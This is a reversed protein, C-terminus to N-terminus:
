QVHVTLTHETGDNLTLVFQRCTGRWAGVNWSYTYTGSAFSLSGSTPALAGLPSGTTCDVQRSAPSGAALIGLGRDAGGLTFKVAATKNQKASVSGVWAFGGYYVHYTRTVTTTNGANDTATVTFTHNGVPSTSFVSPGLCGAVGSVADSCSFSSAISSGLAYEGGATPATITIV